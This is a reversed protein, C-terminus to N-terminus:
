VVHIGVDLWNLLYLTMKDVYLFLAFYDWYMKVMDSVVYLQM